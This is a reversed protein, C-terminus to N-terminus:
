PLCVFEKTPEVGGLAARQLLKRALPRLAQGLGSMCLFAADECLGWDACTVGLPHGYSKVSHLNERGSWNPSDETLM